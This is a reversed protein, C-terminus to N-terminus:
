VKAKIKRAMYTKDGYKNEYGYGYGYGYQGKIFGRSKVGNFIIAVENLSKIKNSQSLRQVINKPTYSHRMVLLTIDCYESLLFADSILDVPPTDIIVYDFAKELYDFFIELKGNLLLETHDGVDIGAAVISLNSFATDRIIDGPAIDEHLFEIIGTQGAVGFLSSTNPNRLDFDLLAVKKGSSALSYALNSSVYSKGEGPISSTVMIKKKTFTRGYLGMTARLQRFQEIVAVETPENFLEGKQREVNTLEAVIPAKTHSEIESRFLLKGNFLEKSTVLAIGAGLALVVAGLYAYLPKPSVPEKSSQAMDVIRIDEATPAYSLVTEERKQLLFSYANNKIAQQRSIELLEREMHPITQLVSNYRNNTQSLNAQSVILNDRQNRINELISPRISSIEQTLSLLIPNNEATTKSLQQHEIEASYLKELLQSLVPDNVGLTSPVIGTTHEKSKVYQEVRDLVALQLNIEAMKRDNTGINELFQRGREDLDVAGQSSKYEVIKNELDKLEKEILQIRNEVFELTQAALKSRDTLAAQQYAQILTNLIDEGREPVQDELYLNIVSSLKGPSEILIKGRIQNAVKQPNNISFYLPATAEQTKNKNKKFRMTGYPTDVWRKLPYAKDAIVVKKKRADYQFYVEPQETVKEPSKIEITIPSTTYASTTKFKGKEYIPAYLELKKVVNNMLSHSSLVDIENEVLKNTTFADISETMKSDNVGKEEDKVILSASVVYAPTAFYQLYVWAGLLSVILLGTFLPWFPLYRFLISSVLNEESNAKNNM